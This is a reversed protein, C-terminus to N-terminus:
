DIITVSIPISDAMTSLTGNTARLYPYTYNPYMDAPGNIQSYRAARTRTATYQDDARGCAYSHHAHFLDIKDPVHLADAENGQNSIKAPQPAKSRQNFM